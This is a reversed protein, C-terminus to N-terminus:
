SEKRKPAQASKAAKAIAEEALEANHAIHPQRVIELARKFEELAKEPECLDNLYITGANNMSPWSTPDLTEAETFAAIADDFRNEKRATEGRAFAEGAQRSAKYAASDACIRSRAELITRDRDAEPCELAATYRKLAEDRRGEAYALDALACHRHYSKGYIKEERRFYNEAEEAKGQALMIVGLNRLVRVSDPEKQELKRFWSEAQAYRGTVYANLGMQEWFTDLFKPM